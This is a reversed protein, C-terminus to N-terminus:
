KRKLSKIAKERHFEHASHDRVLIASKSFNPWCEDYRRQSPGRSWSDLILLSSGIWVSVRIWSNNAGLSRIKDRRQLFEVSTRDDNFKRSESSVTVQKMYEHLFFFFHEFSKSTCFNFLLFYNETQCPSVTRIEFCYSGTRTADFISQFIKSERQM